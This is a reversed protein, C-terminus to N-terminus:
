PNSFLVKNSKIPQGDVLVTKTHVYVLITDLREIGASMTKVQLTLKSVSDNLTRLQGIQSMEEVKFNDGFDYGLLADKTYAKLQESVVAEFEPHQQELKMLDLLEKFKLISLAEFDDVSSMSVLESELVKNETDSYSLPSENKCAMCILLCMFCVVVRM